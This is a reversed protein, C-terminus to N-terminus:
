PRAELSERVLWGAVIEGGDDAIYVPYRRAPKGSPRLTLWRDTPRYVKPPTGIAVTAPLPASM